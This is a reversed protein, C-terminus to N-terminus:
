NIKLVVLLSLYATDPQTEAATPLTILQENHKKILYKLFEKQIEESGLAAGLHRKWEPTINVKHELTIHFNQTLLWLKAWCNIIQEM